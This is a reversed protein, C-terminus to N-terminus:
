QITKIRRVKLKVGSWVVPMLNNRAKRKITERGRRGEKKGEGGSEGCKWKGDAVKIVHM